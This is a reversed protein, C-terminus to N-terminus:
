QLAEKILPALSVKSLKTPLSDTCAVEVGKFMDIGKAFVGHVCGLYIGKAGQKKLLKAAELMTGGTAIIDDLILVNRGRVDLNKPQMEVTDGSLRKKVLHDYPCGVEKAAAEAYHLAGQDPALITLDEVDKFHAGVLPFANLNTIRVGGYEAKRARELFHANVMVIEDSYGDITKLFVKASVAEGELFTKDQRQYMLHPVVCTVRKAGNDKLASLTLILEILDDNTQTTHILVIDEGDVSNLLRVYIEGDPFVKKEIEGTKAGLGKAVEKALKESKESYFVLM